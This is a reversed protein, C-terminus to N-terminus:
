LIMFHIGAGVVTSVVHLVCVVLWEVDQACNASVKLAHAVFGVHVLMSVIAVAKVSSIMATSIAAATQNMNTPNMQRNTKTMSKTKNPNLNKVRQGM